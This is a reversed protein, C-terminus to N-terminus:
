ESGLVAEEAAAPLQSAAGSLARHESSRARALLALDVPEFWPFMLFPRGPKIIQTLTGRVQRPRLPAVGSRVFASLSRTVIVPERAEGDYPSCTVIFSAVPIASSSRMTM